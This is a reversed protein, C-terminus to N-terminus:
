YRFKRNSPHEYKRRGHGGGRGAGGGGMQNPKEPKEDEEYQFDPDEALPKHRKNYDRIFYPASDKHVYGVFFVKVNHEVTYVKAYNLRSEPDLLGYRPHSPDVQIAKNKLKQEGPVETPKWDKPHNGRTYIICHDQPKVGHKATAQGGYTLIPSSINSM